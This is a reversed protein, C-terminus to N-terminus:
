LSSHPVQIVLEDKCFAQNYRVIPRNNMIPEDNIMCMTNKASSNEHTAFYVFSVNNTDATLQRKFDIESFKM